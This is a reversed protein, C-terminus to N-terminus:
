KNYPRADQRNSIKKREKDKYMVMDAEKLVKDISESMDRRIAYGLSIDIKGYPEESYELTYAVMRSIFMKVEEEPFNPIIIVFEDGGVRCVSGSEPTFGRMAESAAIILKDGYAHGYNDNVYKLNNLDGSIFSLPLYEGRNLKDCQNEFYRRNFLNTLQDHNALHFLKAISEQQVTIDRLEIFTGINLDNKDTVASKLYEYYTTGGEAVSVVTMGNNYSVTGERQYMWAALLDQFFMGVCDPAIFSFNAKGKTNIFLIKGNGEVIIVISSIKNFVTGVALFSLDTTTFYLYTYFLILCLALLGFMGGIDNYGACLNYLDLLLYAGAATLFITSQWKYLVSSSRYHGIFFIISLSLCVYGYITDIYFWVGNIISLHSSPYYVNIELYKFIIEPSVLTLIVIVTPIVLASAWILKKVSIDPKTFHMAFLMLFVYM